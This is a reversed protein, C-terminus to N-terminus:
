LAAFSIFLSKLYVRSFSEAVEESPWDAYIHRGIMPNKNLDKVYINFFPNQLMKFTTSVLLDNPEWGFPASCQKETVSIINNESIQPKEEIPGGCLRYSFGGYLNFNSNSRPSGFILLNENVVEKIFEIVFPMRRAQDTSHLADFLNSLLTFIDAKTNKSCASTPICNQSAISNVIIESVRPWGFAPVSYVGGWDWDYLKAVLGLTEVALYNSSNAPNPIYNIVTSQDSLKDVFVNGLHLDGHRVGRSNLAEVTYIIQALLSRMQAESISKSNLMSMLSTGRGRELVLFRVPDDSQMKLGRKAYIEASERLLPALIKESTGAASIQDVTCDFYGLATVLNPTVRKQVLKTLFSYLKVEADLPATQGLAVPPYIRPFSAKMIVDCKYQQWQKEFQDQLAAAGQKPPKLSGAIIVSDSASGKDTNSFVKVSEIVQSLNCTDAYAVDGSRLANFIALRWNEDLSSSADPLQHDRSCALSAANQLLKERQMRKVRHITKALRYFLEKAFKSFFLFKSKQLFFLFPIQHIKM